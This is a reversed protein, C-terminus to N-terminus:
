RCSWWARELSELAFRARRTYYPEIAAQIRRIVAEDYRKPAVLVLLPFTEGLLLM